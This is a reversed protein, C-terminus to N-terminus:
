SRGRRVASNENHRPVPRPPAHAPGPPAPATANNPTVPSSSTPQPQAKAVRPKEDAAPTLHGWKQALLAGLSGMGGSAAPKAERSFAKFNQREEVQAVRGVSLRLKGSAADRSVVVVRLEHGIPYSRKFDAGPALELERTPVLGEGKDTAVIIGNPVHRAVKGDLIEELEVTPANGTPAVAALAKLSLRINLGRDTKEVALVKATVQEGVSVVDEPKEVRSRSLESVHIFGDIGGLDVIAGHRVTGKVTGTVTAGAAITGLLQEAQQKRQEELLSKRSVVVNRGGEKIEIVRFELTQGVYAEQDTVYGIDIQSIPCFARTGALDVSFGGKVAASVTGSVPTKGELAFQLTAATIASGGRGLAMTLEPGSAHPIKVTARIKDGVKIDRGEFELVDIKGDGKGGVDVLVLGGSIEIVTGEVQQGAVLRPAGQRGAGSSLSVEFLAAFDGKDIMAPGLM